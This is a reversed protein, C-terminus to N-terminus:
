QFVPLYHRLARPAEPCYLSGARQRTASPTGIPGHAKLLPLSAQWAARERFARRRQSAM